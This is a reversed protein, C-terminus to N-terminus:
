IKGLEVDSSRLHLDRQPFPIEVKANRFARDIAFRLDSEIVDNAWLDTVWVRLDFNLSSDGFDEFIVVPKPTSLVGDHAKAVDLLIKEVKKTDSGYAVGVHIHLRLKSGSFSDNIVRESIFQSNPVIIATDDRTVVLTSRAHIDVIRGKTDGVEVIDGKKIPRQLLIIIGSIFNQTINQLGFGVGVMLVGAVAALSNLNIGISDLAVFIGLIIIIYKAFKEISGQIGPDINRTKLFRDLLKQVIKSVWLFGIFILIASLFSALSVDQEGLEFLPTTLVKLAPKISEIFENM